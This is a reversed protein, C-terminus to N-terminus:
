AVISHKCGALISTLPLHRQVDELVASGKKHLRLNLYFKFVNLCDKIM